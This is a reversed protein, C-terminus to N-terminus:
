VTITASTDRVVAGASPTQATVVDTDLTGAALDDYSIRLLSLLDRAEAVTLGVINPMVQVAEVAPSEPVPVVRFRLKSAGKLDYSYRSTYGADVPATYTKLKSKGTSEDYSGTVTLAMSIEAEAEPIHYWTPRYGIRQLERYLDENSEYISQLASITALDIERQANAVSTGVSTILDGLPASLADLLAPADFTPM